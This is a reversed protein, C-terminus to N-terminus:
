YIGHHYPAVQLSHGRGNVSPSQTVIDDRGIAMDPKSINAIGSEIPTQTEM